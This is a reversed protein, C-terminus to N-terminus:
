AHVPHTSALRNLANGMDDFDLAEGLSGDDNVWCM